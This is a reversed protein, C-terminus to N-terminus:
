IAAPRGTEASRLAAEHLKMARVIDVPHCKLEAGHRIAAFLNEGFDVAEGAECTTEGDPTLTRAQGDAATVTAGDTWAVYRPLGAVPRRTIRGVGWGGDRLPLYLLLGDVTGGARAEVHASVSTVDQRLLVHMQDLVALGMTELPGADGTAPGDPEPMPWFALLARVPEGGREALAARLALFDPADRGPLDMTAILGDRVATKMVRTAEAASECFPPRMMAHRGVQLARVGLDRREAVPGDVVVLEVAPDALLVNYDAHYTAPRDAPRQGALGEDSFGVLRFREPPLGALAEDATAPRVGVAGVGM